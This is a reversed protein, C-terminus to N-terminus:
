LVCFESDTLIGAQNQLSPRERAQPHVGLRRSLELMCPLGLGVHKPVTPPPLARSFGSAPVGGTGSDNSTHKDRQRETETDRDIQRERTPETLQHVPLLAALASAQQLVPRPHEQVITALMKATTPLPVMSPVATTPLSKFGGTPDRGTPALPGVRDEAVPRPASPPARSGQPMERGERVSRQEVSLFSTSQRPPSIGTSSAITFASPAGHVPTAVLTGNM